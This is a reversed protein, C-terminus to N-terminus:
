INEIKIERETPWIKTAAVAMKEALASMEYNRRRQAHRFHDTQTYGILRSIIQGACRADVCWPDHKDPNEKGCGNCIRSIEAEISHSPSHKDIVVEIAADMRRLGLEVIYDLRTKTSGFVM